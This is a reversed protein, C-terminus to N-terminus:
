STRDFRWVGDQFSFVRSTISRRSDSGRVGRNKESGSNAV